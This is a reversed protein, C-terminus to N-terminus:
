ALLRELHRALKQSVRQTSDDVGLDKLQTVELGPYGCPDIGLFPSLDMDVNLALGHYCCGRTVRLGVAAVKAGGVYVGPAEIRNGSHIRYDALLDIVATEMLRVLPRVTLHRRKMDLLLYGIVQGPGHYTIQGGRDIRVVPIEHHTRPLHAARAALGLTYVPPHEVLWLEDATAATRARTFAQMERWIPEYEVRGLYKVKLRHERLTAVSANVSNMSSPM